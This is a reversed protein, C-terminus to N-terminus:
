RPENTKVREEGGAAAWPIRHVRKCRRCLIEVGAPTLKAVLSGCVCREDAAIPATPM